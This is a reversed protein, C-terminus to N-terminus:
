EANRNFDRKVDHGLYKLVEEIITDVENAYGSTVQKDNIFVKTGYTYCCGDHCTHQWEETRIILKNEM